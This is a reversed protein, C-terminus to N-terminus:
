EDTSEREELVWVRGCKCRGIWTNEYQGGINEIDVEEGCICTVRPERV